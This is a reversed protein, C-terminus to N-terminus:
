VCKQVCKYGQQYLTRTLHLRLFFRSKGCTGLLERYIKPPILVLNRVRSLRSHDVGRDRPGKLFHYVNLPIFNKLSYISTFRFEDSYLM